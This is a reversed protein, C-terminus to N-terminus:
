VIKRQLIRFISFNSKRKEFSKKQFDHLEADYNSQLNIWFTKAVGLVSELGDAFENTINSKGDIVSQVYSESFGTNKALERPLMGREKLVDSVTEGPHIILERSIGIKKAAM